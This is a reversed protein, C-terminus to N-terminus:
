LGQHSTTRKKWGRDGHRNSIFLLGPLPQTVRPRNKKQKRDSIHRGGACGKDGAGVKERNEGM